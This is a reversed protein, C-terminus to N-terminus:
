LGQSSIVPVAALYADKASKDMTAISRKQDESLSLLKNEEEKSLSKLVKTRSSLEERFIPLVPDKSFDMTGKKIGDLASVFAQRRVSKDPDSEVKKLTADFADKAM